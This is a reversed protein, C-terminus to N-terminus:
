VISGTIHFMDSGVARVHSSWPFIYMACDPNASHSYSLGLIIFTSWLPFADMRTSLNM